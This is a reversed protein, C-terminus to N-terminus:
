LVARNEQRAQKPSRERQGRTKDKEWDKDNNLTVWKSREFCMILFRAGGRHCHRCRVVAARFGDLGPGLGSGLIVLVLVVLAVFRVLVFALVL